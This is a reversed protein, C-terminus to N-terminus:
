MTSALSPGDRVPMLLDLVMVDPLLRQCLEFATAGDSAEGVVEIDPQAGLVRAFARRVFGSDDALLVRIRRSTSSM